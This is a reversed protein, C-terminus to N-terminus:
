DADEVFYVNANLKCVGKDWDISIARGLHRKNLLRLLAAVDKAERPTGDAWITKNKALAKIPVSRDHQIKGHCLAVLLRLADRNSRLQSRQGDLWVAHVNANTPCENKPHVLVIHKPTPTNWDFDDQYWEWGDMRLDPVEIQMPPLRIKEPDLKATVKLLVELGRQWGKKRKAPKRPAPIPVGPQHHDLLDCTAWHVAAYSGVFTSGACLVVVVTHGSVLVEYKQVIAYDTLIGDKLETRHELPPLHPGISELVRHYAPDPWEKPEYDLAGYLPFSYRANKMQWDAAAPVSQFFLGPRGVKFVCKVNADRPLTYAFAGRCFEVRELLPFEARSLLNMALAVAREDRPRVDVLHALWSPKSFEEFLKMGLSGPLLLTPRPAAEASAAEAPRAEKYKAEVARELEVQIAENAEHTAHALEALVRCCWYSEPSRDDDHRRVRRFVEERVQRTVALEGGRVLHFLKSWGATRDDAERSDLAKLIQDFTIRTEARPM